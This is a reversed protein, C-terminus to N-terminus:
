TKNCCVNELVHLIDELSTEALAFRSIRLNKSNATLVDDIGDLKALVPRRLQFLLKANVSDGRSAVVPGTLDDLIDYIDALRFGSSKTIHLSFDLGLFCLVDGFNYIM